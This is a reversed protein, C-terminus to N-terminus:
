QMGRLKQLAKAEREAKRQLRKAKLAPSAKEAADRAEIRKRTAEAKLRAENGGLERDYTMRGVLPVYKAMKEKGSMGLLEQFHKYPPLAIDRAVELPKGKGIQDLTYRSVGFNKLLTETYDIKDLGADRGSLWNKIVDGPINSLALASAVAVLNKAGRVYNGDRIENYADRRIVDMQKLMYTKMQYLLRGNPNELYAQPMELKTLPQADSLESFLLSKVRPTVEGAQLERLLEPFEEGFAPAYRRALEARGKLTSALKQNKLLGANLNLGKAFQDIAAFGNAKFVAQLAKGTWRNSGLEEAIHNVLGFEKATVQSNGTLKDKLASLTPVLGHHYITMVSDGIQTAASGFQGLLAVNTANRVDQLPGAMSQEGGEFRAKLLARLDNAQTHSMRGSELEQAVINGISGDVDTMVKGGLKRTSLDKGFFKALEADQIAASVYRLLSDTPPAYFQRLEPTVTEVGRAHAFGPLHSGGSEAQLSRNVILSTEVDTLGRQQEKIMKAEAKLLADELSTRQEQGLAKKLGELDTVLRPFYNSLGEKFRGLDKHTQEFKNLLGQVAEYAPRAEAPLHQKIKAADGNLLALDLPSGEPTQKLTQIFPTATTLANETAELVNREYERARLRLAPSINGLRTSLAGFAYDLGKAFTGAGQKFKGGTIGLMGAMSLAQADDPNQSFYAALGGAAAIGALLKPDASGQEDRAIEAKVEARREERPVYDGTDPHKILGTNELDGVEGWKGSRVFDQVYPRYAEVPARNAKGKIQIISDAFAPERGPMSNVAKAPEVEVTVHSKGKADRLSYIKSEGSAVADCYGGVCHGLQNGEEALRGALYAKAPTPGVAFEETYSNKIPKGSADVAIYADVANGSEEDTLQRKRYEEPKTERVGKAQEPTLKEPLKLEVWKMGDLSGPNKGESYDRYIPLQATSDSAAKEALKEMKADHAATEKVARVLDYQGLKEAPVNQRLYDGVHSLYSTIATYARGEGLGRGVAGGEPVGLMTTDWITEEPPINKVFDRQERAIKSRYDGGAPQLYDKAKTGVIAADTLKEWKIKGEGYPVEVNALPDGETGAYRNLYRSIAKDSWKIVTDNRWLVEDIPVEGGHPTLREKLPNSLRAVAEPHWSGVNRGGIQRGAVAGVALPLGDTLALGNGEDNQLPVFEENHRKWEKDNQEVDHKTTDSMGLLRFVRKAIESAIEPHNDSIYKAGLIGIGAAGGIIALMKPDSIDYNRTTKSTRRM